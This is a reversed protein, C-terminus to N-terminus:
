PRWMTIWRTKKLNEEDGDKECAEVKVVKEKFEVKKGFNNKQTEFPSVVQVDEEQSDQFNPINASISKRKPVFKKLM